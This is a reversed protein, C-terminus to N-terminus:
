AAAFRLTVGYRAALDCSQHDAENTDELELNFFAMSPDHFFPGAHWTGRYLLVAVGGPIAFAAIDELLPEARPGHPGHPPAVGLLWPRAAASALVQTVARHRTIRAFEMGRYDLDMIFFRPKGGALDLSADIAGARSGDALPTILCGFPAFGAATIPAAVLERRGSQHAPETFVM